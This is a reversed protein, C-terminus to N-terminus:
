GVIVCNMNEKLPTKKINKQSPQNWHIEKWSIHTPFQKASIMHYWTIDMSTRLNMPITITLSIMPISDTRCLKTCHPYKRTLLKKPHITQPSSQPIAPYTPKAVWEPIPPFLPLTLPSMVRPIDQSYLEQSNHICGTYM